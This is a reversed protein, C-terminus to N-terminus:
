KKEYNFLEFDKMYLLNVKDLMERSYINSEESNIKTSSVNKKSFSITRDLKDSLKNEVESLTELRGVYDCLNLGQYYVFEHQPIFHEAGCNIAYQLGGNVIFDEFNEYKSIYLDFWVKDIVNMGGLVLYNYASHLRDYPNRVITFIFLQNFLLDNKFLYDSSTAHCSKKVNYLTDVVSMGAAKPIHVFVVEKHYNEYLKIKKFKEDNESRVRKIIQRKLQYYQRFEDLGLLQIISKINRKM